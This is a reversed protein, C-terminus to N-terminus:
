CSSQWGASGRVEARERQSRHVLLARSLPADATRPSAASVFSEGARARSDGTGMEAVEMEGMEMEEEEKEEERTAERLGQRLGRWWRFGARWAAGTGGAAGTGAQAQIPDPLM